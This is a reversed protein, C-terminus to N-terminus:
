KKAKRAFHLARGRRQYYDAAKSLIKERNAKYYAAHVAPDRPVKPEAAKAAAFRARKEAAEREWRERCRVAERFAGAKTLCDVSFMKRQGNEVRAVYWRRVRQEGNPLQRTRTWLSVGVRGTTTKCSGMWHFIKPIKM